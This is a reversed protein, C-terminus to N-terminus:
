KKKKKRSHKGYHAKYTHRPYMVPPRLQLDSLLSHYKWPEFLKLKVLMKRRRQAMKVLRNKVPFDKRNNM